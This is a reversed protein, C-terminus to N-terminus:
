LFGYYTYLTCTGINKNFFRIAVPFFKNNGKNSADTAISFYTDKLQKLVLEISYPGLVNEVLATIKTRGCHIKSALTSDSFYNKLLKNGWDQSLYSHHHKIGYYTLKLETRAINEIETSNKTSFFSNMIKNQKIISLRKKHKESNQHKKLALFGEYKITFTVRCLPCYAESESSKQLWSSYTDEKLWKDLFVCMCRPKKKLPKSECDSESSSM